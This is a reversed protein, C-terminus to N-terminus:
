QENILSNNLITLYGYGAYCAQLSQELGIIQKYAPMNCLKYISADLCVDLCICMYLYM